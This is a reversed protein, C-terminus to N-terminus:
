HGPSRGPVGLQLLLVGCGLARNSWPNSPRSFCHQAWWTSRSFAGTMTPSVGAAHALGRFSGLAHVREALEAVADPDPVDCAIGVTGEIQPAVLDVTVLHDTTGRLSEVCLRGMGSAAGTVVTVRM